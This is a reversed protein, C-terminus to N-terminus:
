GDDEDDEPVGLYQRWAKLQDPLVPHTRELTELSWLGAWSDMLDRVQLSGLAAPWALLWSITSRWGCQAACRVAILMEDDTAGEGEWGDPSVWVNPGGKPVMEALTAESSGGCSPCYWATGLARAELLAERPHRVCWRQNAQHWACWAVLRGDPAHRIPCGCSPRVTTADEM